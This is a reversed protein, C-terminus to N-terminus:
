FARVARVKVAGNKLVVEQNGNEFNQMYASNASVESSSLYITNDFNGVNDLGLFNGQGINLYMDGLEGISPLFWDNYGSLNLDYCIAAADNQTLCPSNYIDITNQNGTGIAIGDAGDVAIGYCGFVLGNAYDVSAAILGHTQGEIYGLDGQEFIHFIIGGQYEDGIAVQPNYDCSGDDWNASSNYNASLNDTCGFVFLSTLANLASDLNSVVQSLSDITANSASSSTGGGVNTIFTSDVSILNSLSDYDVVADIGDIGDSGDQGNTGPFGPLGQIGQEGQPGTLGIPGQAGTEGQAGDVGDNGDQGNTGPLGQEGQIGQEGQEGQPGVSGADTNGANLAYLAYPVSRLQSTGMIVFANDGNFDIEVQLFYTHNAWDIDEFSGSSINGEGIFLNVLGIASTTEVHKEQYVMLGQPEDELISLRLVVEQNAMVNFGDDRIVTQYSFSQPPSQALLATSMLLAFLLSYFKTM